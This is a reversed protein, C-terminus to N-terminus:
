DKGADAPTKQFILFFPVGRAKAYGVEYVNQKEDTLDVIVLRSDDIEQFVRAPIEYSEDGQKDIRMPALPSNPHSDNVLKIAEEFAKQVGDPTKTEQFSL